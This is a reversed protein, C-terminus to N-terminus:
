LDLACFDLTQFESLKNCSSGFFVYLDKHILLNLFSFFSYYRRLYLFVPFHGTGIAFIQSIDDIEITILLTVICDFAWFWSSFAIIDMWTLTYARSSEPPSILAIVEVQVAFSSRTVYFVLITVWFILTEPRIVQSITM